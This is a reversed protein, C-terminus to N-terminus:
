GLKPSAADRGLQRSYLWGIGILSFGLAIFSAIRLLGDLGATDLLFVKVTALLMLLLSALRWDRRGIRIGWLLFGIALSIGLISRLIDEAASIGPTTLMTGHFAQRLTAWGFMLIMSMQVIPVIRNLQERYQTTMMRILTIGAPLLIFLPLLLNAVPWAGVAQQTWMPNHLLISYYGTHLMAALILAPALRGKLIDFGNRLAYGAALLLGAWLLRQALGYAVFDSGIIQSFGIRYLSHAAVAGIVGAVLTGQRTAPAPLQERMWRLAFTLALAPALLQKLVIPLSLQISDITMPQGLLSLLAASTWAAVPLLTWCASVGFIAMLAPRMAPYAQNRGFIALLMLIAPAIMPVLTIPLLQTLTGYLMVIALGTGVKQLSSVSSRVAFYAALLTVAAWRLAAIASIGNGPNAILRVWEGIPNDGTIALWVIAALALIAAQAEVFMEGRCLGIYLIAASVGSMAIPLSWGPLMQALMGYAMISTFWVSMIRSAQGRDFGAFAAFLAALGGWRVISYASIISANGSVLRNIETWDSPMSIILLPLTAMAFMRANHKGFSGQSRMSIALMVVAIAALGLPLAWLPLLMALVGYSFGGAVAHAAIRTPMNGARYAYLAFSAALASWRLISQFLSTVSRDSVLEMLEEAVPAMTLALLPATLALFSSAVPEIRHDRAREGFFLMATSIVALSIPAQWHPLAFWSAIFLLASTSATLWAFRSDDSRDNQMWGKGIAIAPLIAAAAAVLAINTDNQGNLTFYHRLTVLLAAAAVGCYELTLQLRVPKQWIKLLLPGSHIALLSLGIMALWGPSPDPWIVLLFASLGLSITPVIEFNRDRWALWQGATSLLAFLGWHLPAFGGLAVLIALQAAGISAAAGRMLAARPGELVLMPIAIALLIIFGGVSLSALVDLASSALVMWLSWGAGGLMAALALWPWRQMRSVGSLGAVTLALYVALLPVNASVGSVMAPAALGGALGLLASPAGHRISLWLTSATIVALCLFAVLPSILGYVNGAVLIAGYLTAIGAGSLAQEVRPDDVRDKNRHAFEAGGILGTGFLIGSIIQVGPTFVRGFFDADIAYKVILM